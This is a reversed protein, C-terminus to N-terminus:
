RKWQNLFQTLDTSEMHRMDSFEKNQAYLVKGSPDVVALAPVGKLPVGYRKALEVNADEHGINVNVRIFNKALLEANPSQGFYYNLVQCDPCWDGGFDLLVRKHTRRAEALAKKVDAPGDEITPYIQKKALGASADHAQAVASRPGVSGALALALAAGLVVGKWTRKLKQKEAM